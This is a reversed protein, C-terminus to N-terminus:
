QGAAGTPAASVPDASAPDAPVQVSGQASDPNLEASPGTPQGAPVQNSVQRGQVAAAENRLLRGIALGAFASGTLFVVPRRRAFRRIDVIVGDLGGRRIRQALESLRDAGEHAYDVLPGAEDLRGHALARTQLHLRDLADAVQSLQTDARERLQARTDGVLQGAVSTVERSVQSAQEVIMGSVQTAAETVQQVDETVQQVDETVQQVDKTM